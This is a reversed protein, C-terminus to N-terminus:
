GTLQHLGVISLIVVAFLQHTQWANSHAIWSRYGRFRLRSPLATIKAQTSVPDNEETALRAKFVQRLMIVKERPDGLSNRRRLKYKQRKIVDYAVNQKFSQPTSEYGM